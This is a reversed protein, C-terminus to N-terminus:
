FYRHLSPYVGERPHDKDTSMNFGGFQTLAAPGAGNQFAGEVKAECVERGNRKSVWTVVKANHTTTGKNKIQM